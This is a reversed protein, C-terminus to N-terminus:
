ALVEENIPEHAPPDGAAATPRRVRRVLRLVLVLAAAIVLWWWPVAWYAQSDSVAEFPEASEPSPTLDVTAVPRILSPVGSVEVVRTLTEGPLLREVRADDASREFLGFPGSVSLTSDGDWVTTGSNTITYTIRTTGGILSQWRGTQEASVIDVDARPTVEGVVRVTIPMALRRDVVLNGPKASPTPISVVIAGVYDGPPAKRPVKLSFPVLREAPPVSEDTRGPIRVTQPKLSTWRGVSDSKQGAALVDFSGADTTFGDAAYLRV